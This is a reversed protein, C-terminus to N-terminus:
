RTSKILIVCICLKSTLYFEKKARTLPLTMWTKGLQSHVNGFNQCYVLFGNGDNWHRITCSVNPNAFCDLLGGDHHCMENSLAKSFPWQYSLFQRLHNSIPYFRDFTILSQIVGTSPSWQNSLVQRYTSHVQAIQRLTTSRSDVAQRALREQAQQEDFLRQHLELKRRRKEDLDFHFRDVSASAKLYLRFHM